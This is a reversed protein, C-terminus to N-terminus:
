VAEEAYVFFTIAQFRRCYERCQVNDEPVPLNFDVLAVTVFCYERLMM